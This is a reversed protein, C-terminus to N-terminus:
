ENILGKQEVSQASEYKVKRNKSFAEEIAKHLEESGCIILSEIPAGDLSKILDAVFTRAAKEQDKKLAETNRGPNRKKLDEIGFLREDHLINDENLMQGNNWCINYIISAVEEYNMEPPLCLFITNPDQKKIEQCVEDARRIVDKRGSQTLHKTFLDKEYCMFQGKYLVEGNQFVVEGDAFQSEIDVGMERAELIRQQVSRDIEYMAYKSIHSLTEESEGVNFYYLKMSVERTGM